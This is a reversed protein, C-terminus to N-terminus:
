QSGPMVDSNNHSGGGIRRWGPEGQSTGLCEADVLCAVPGLVAVAPLEVVGVRKDYVAAALCWGHADGSSCEGSGCQGEGGCRRWECAGRVVGDCGVTRGGIGLASRRVLWGTGRFV